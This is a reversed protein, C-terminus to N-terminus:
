SFMKELDSLQVPKLDPKEFYKTCLHCAYNVDIQYNVFQFDKDDSSYILGVANPFKKFSFSDLSMSIGKGIAKMYSEKLTWLQYFYDIRDKEGALSFLDDLEQQTFFRKAVKLRNGKNKEIDIGVPCDSFAVVVYDGSHSINFYRNPYDKLFPKEHANFDFEVEMPNLHLEKAYFQRVMLNGILSRQKDSLFRYAEVKSRLSIPFKSEINQYFREFDSKSVLQYSFVRLM